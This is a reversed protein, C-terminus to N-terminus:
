INSDKLLNIFNLRKVCYGVVQVHSLNKTTEMPIQYNSNINQQLKM